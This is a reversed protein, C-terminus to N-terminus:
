QADGAPIKTSLEDVRAEAGRTHESANPPTGIGRRFWRRWRARWDEGLVGEPFVLLAIILGVGYFMGHVESGPVSDQLLVVLVVGIIPGLLTRRGGVIVAIAIMFSLDLSLSSPAMYSRMHAYYWGGLGALGGALAFAASLRATVPIGLSAALVSDTSITRLARGQNSTRLRVYIVLVVAVLFWGFLHGWFLNPLFPIPPIGSLGVYGGTLDGGENVLLQILQSFALTALGLALPSLRVILRAMCFALVLPVAISFILGILPSVGMNMTVIATAYAGLSAFTAQAFSLMGGLGYSLGLSVAIVSFTAITVSTDLYGPNGAIFPTVAAVLIIMVVVPSSGNNFLHNRRAMQTTM